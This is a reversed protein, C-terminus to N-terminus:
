FGGNEQRQYEAIEKRFGDMARRAAVRKSEQSDAQVVNGLSDIVTFTQGLQDANDIAYQRAAESRSAQLRQQVEAAIYSRIQPLFL